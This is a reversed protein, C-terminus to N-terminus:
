RVFTNAVRRSRIVYLVWIVVPIATSISRQIVDPTIMRQMFHLFSTGEHWTVSASFWTVEAPVLLILCISTVIYVSMFRKSRLVMFIATCIQMLIVASHIAIDGDIAFWFEKWFAVDNGSAVGILKIITFIPSLFVGLALLALWGQFGSPGSVPTATSSEKVSRDDPRRQNIARAFLWVAAGVLVILIAIIIWHWISLSQM